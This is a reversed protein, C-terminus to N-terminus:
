VAVTSSAVAAAGDAALHARVSASLPITVGMVTGLVVLRAARLVTDVLTTAFAAAHHAPALALLAESAPGSRTLM